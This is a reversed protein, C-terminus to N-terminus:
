TTEYLSISSTCTQLGHLMDAPLVRSSFTFSYTEMPLHTVHWTNHTYSYSLAHCPTAPFAVCAWCTNLNLLLSFGVLSISYVPAYLILACWSCMHTFQVHTAPQYWLPHAPAREPRWASPLRLQVHPMQFAERRLATQHPSAPKGEPHLLGWVSHLPIAEWRPSLFIFLYVCWSLWEACKLM